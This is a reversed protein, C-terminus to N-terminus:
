GWRPEKRSTMPGTQCAAASSQAMEQGPDPPARHRRCAARTPNRSRSAIDVEFPSRHRGIQDDGVLGEAAGFQEVLDGLQGGSPRAVEVEHDRRRSWLFVERPGLALRPRDSSAPELLSEVLQAAGADGDVTLDAVGARDQGDVVGQAMAGDIVDITHVSGIPIDRQSLSLRGLRMSRLCLTGTVWRTMWGSVLRRWRVPEAPLRVEALLDLLAILAELKAEGLDPPPTMQRWLAEAQFVREAIDLWITQSEASM